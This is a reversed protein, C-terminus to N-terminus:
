GEAEWQDVRQERQQALYTEILAERKEPPMEHLKAQQEPNAADLIAHWANEQENAEAIEAPTEGKASVAALMANTLPRERKGKAPERQKEYRRRSMETQWAALGTVRGQAIGVAKATEKATANPNAKLHKRVMLNAEDRPIPKKNNEGESGSDGEGESDFPELRLKLRELLVWVADGVPPLDPRFGYYSSELDRAYQVLASADMGQKECHKALYLTQQRLATIAPSLRYDGPPHDEPDGMGFHLLEQWQEPWDALADLASAAADAPLLPAFATRGKLRELEQRIAELDLGAPSPQEGNSGAKAPPNKGKAAAKPKASDPQRKAKNPM